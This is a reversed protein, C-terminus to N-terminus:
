SGTSGFGGTGRTTDTISEIYKFEGRIVPSFLLQAIRDGPQVTYEVPGHNILIVGVEGRYDSDITGPSNLVTVGHRAALGSRPRVQAEFGDPVEIKIGTPVLQYAGPSLIVPEEIAATLDAGASGSTAYRPVQDASGTYYITIRKEM